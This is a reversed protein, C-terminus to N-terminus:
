FSRRLGPRIKKMRAPRFLVRETAMILEGKPSYDLAEYQKPFCGHKLRLERREGQLFHSGPFQSFLFVSSRAKPWFGLFFSYDYSLIAVENGDQRIAAATAVRRPLRISDRLEAAHVGPTAPLCYHKMVYNGKGIKNKSFLHLTDQWWFFSEMDFNQQEPAPPFATQDPYHFLISDTNQQHINYIYIRLDKRRNGNNGFDGIFFKGRHDTSLDEWDTNRSLPVPLSYRLQGRGDTLYLYPEGGSDNHWWLSDPAQVVLGSAENLVRPLRQAPLNFATSMLLAFLLQYKM